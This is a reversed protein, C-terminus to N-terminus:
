NNLFAGITFLVLFNEEESIGVSASLTFSQSYPLLYVGGGYGSHWKDSDEGDVFVRGYDYFGSIGFEFPVFGNPIESLKIRIESNAYLSNNGTFRNIRYGKLNNNQGLSPSENFPINEGLSIAGGIQLGLTIPLVRSRTTTFGSISGSTVQYINESLEPKIICGLNSSLLIRTGYKPFTTNDLFDLDLTNSIRAINLNNEGLVDIDDFISINDKSVAANNDYFLKMDIESKKLFNKALGTYIEFSERRVLYYNFDYLLDNKVTENGFGYFFKRNGPNQYTGGALIDLGFLSRHWRHDTSLTYFGNTTIKGRINHKSHYDLKNFKHRTFQVGLGLGLGDDANYSIIPLPLYRDMQWSERNYNYVFNDADDIVKVEKSKNIIDKEKQDYVYTYKCLSRVNSIDSILDKGDGSIIRVKISKKADGIVNFVDKDDLGYLRIENTEEPNFSRQYLLKDGRKDSNKAMEYVTVDVSGDEKRVVDFYESQNSGVVDVEKALFLYYDEIAGRLYKRRSILNDEIERGDVSYIEEPMARIAKKIIDDDITQLFEDTLKMWEDYSMSTLLFRDLHRAPWVFTEVNEIKEYFRAVNGKAWERSAIYPLIGDWKSYVHDRDRPIPRYLIGEDREYKAWKWNDQHKGWDNTFIDFIRARAFEEVDVKNDHSVYLQRFMEYSKDIDQANYFGSDKPDEELMGLMGAYEERFEGLKEDDPM